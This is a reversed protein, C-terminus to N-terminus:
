DDDHLLSPLWPIGRLKAKCHPCKMTAEAIMVAGHKTERITTPTHADRGCTECTYEYCPRLEVIEEEPFGELLRELDYNDNDM